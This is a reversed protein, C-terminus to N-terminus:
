LLKLKLINFAVMYIVNDEVTYGKPNTKEEIQVIDQELTTDSNKNDDSKKDNDDTNDTDAATVMCNTDSIGDKNAHICSYRNEIIASLEELREVYKRYVEVEEDDETVIQDDMNTPKEKIVTNDNANNKNEIDNNNNTNERKDIDNNNNTNEQKDIDNNNTTDKINDAGENITMTNEESVNNNSINALISDNNTTIAASNKETKNDVIPKSEATETRLSPTDILIENTPNNTNDNLNAARENEKLKIDEIGIAEKNNSDIIYKKQTIDDAMNETNKSLPNVDTRDNANNNDSVETKSLGNSNVANKAEKDETKDTLLPTSIDETTTKFPESIHELNNKDSNSNSNTHNMDEKAIKTNIVDGNDKEEEENEKFSDLRPRICCFM